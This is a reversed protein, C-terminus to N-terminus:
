IDKKRLVYLLHNKSKYGNSYKLYLRLMRLRNNGDVALYKKNEKIAIIPASWTGNPWHNYDCIMKFDEISEDRFNCPPAYDVLSFVEDSTISKRIIVYKSIDIYDFYNFLEHDFCHCHWVLFHEIIDKSFLKGYKNIAYTLRDNEKVNYIDYLIEKFTM